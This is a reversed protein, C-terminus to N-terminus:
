ARNIVSQEWGACFATIVQTQKIIAVSIGNKLTEIKAIQVIATGLSLRYSNWQYTQHMNRVEAEIVVKVAINGYIWHSRELTTLM